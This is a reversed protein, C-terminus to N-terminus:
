TDRGTALEEINLVYPNGWTKIKRKKYAGVFAKKKLSIFYDKFAYNAITAKYPVVGNRSMIQFQSLSGVLGDMCKSPNFIENRASYLARIKTKFGIKSIKEEISEVVTKMGPTLDSVKGAPADIKKEDPEFNWNWINILEKIVYEPLVSAYQLWNKKVEKKNAIIKKVLEIGKTKWSSGTPEVVIQLWFNEGHGIRSFNELIAAMPDSFVVDKSLSYEFSPYTRIPYAENASLAFEVGFANHTENPYKDPIVSVYDEVETIEAEPYQAYISAEVLDRFEAETRILFQIYGEISIIEFSFGKQKKGMWYKQGVNPSVQAGTLHAFIQEVAKPTQIFLPPIDVALIVWKWKASYKNGRYVTWLKAGMSFFLLALIVWGVSCFLAKLQEGAPWSLVDLWFSLDVVFGFPTDVLFPNM